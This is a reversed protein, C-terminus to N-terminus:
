QGVPKTDVSALLRDMNDIQRQTTVEKTLGASAEEGLPDHILRLNPALSEVGRPGPAAAM